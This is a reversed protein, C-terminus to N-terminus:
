TWKCDSASVLACPTSSVWASAPQPQRIGRVPLDDAHTRSATLCGPRQHDCRTHRRKTNRRATWIGAHSLSDLRGGVHFSASIRRSRWWSATRCRCVAARGFSLHVSRASNAASSVSMGREHWPASCKNMVGPVIRRQCRSITRRRQAALDFGFLGPRGGVWRRTTQRTSRMAASLSCQPYRRIAPSSAPSPIATAGEVTQSIKFLCPISGAGRREPGPQACNRREWASTIRARSRNVTSRSSPVFAWTSAAISCAVRRIRIRPAV